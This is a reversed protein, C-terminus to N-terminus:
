HSDPAPLWWLVLWNYQSLQSDGAGHLDAEGWRALAATRGALQQLSVAMKCGPLVTSSAPTHIASLLYLIIWFGTLFSALLLPNDSTLFIFFSGTINIVGVAPDLM